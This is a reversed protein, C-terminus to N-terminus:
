IAKLQKINSSNNTKGTAAEEIHNSWWYMLKRRREIYEARNYARRVENKEQHALASEIVDGDFGQENLTTSALSRMGHAVLRGKFGIRQLAKNARESGSPQNPHRDAPFIYKREGSLPKVRNLLEFVQDTLPVTHPVKMKMREAPITWLNNELDIESWQAEAAERPRVMTHLQWEILCRTTLKISAYGLTQMLEPLEEPKLTPMNTVKPSEFASRIGALSNHHLVGTNVAHRMVENLYGILKSTTELSGRAALPKLVSIAEPALIKDIPRHALKPFVHNEFNRWLSKATTEAIKTKKISFWETAVKEFTNGAALEKERLQDDRYEKPDIGEALQEKAQVRKKRAEALSIEPFNGFSMSTRKKTIPRIYDLLWQKSGNPMVRLQLGGGDSLKYLKDKPKAQKVETNTLPKTRIAM